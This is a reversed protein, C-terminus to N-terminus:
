AIPGAAGKFSLDDILLRDGFSKSVGEFEIVEHGLRDDVPLFIENTENRKKYDNHAREQLRAIRAKSKAPRGKPNQRVWELEKKMAKTRADETKEEQELR